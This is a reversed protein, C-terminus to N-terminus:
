RRRDPEPCFGMEFGSGAERRDLRDPPPCPAPLVGLKVLVPRYEYRVRVSAVPSRDLELDVETVDHHTRSGMGTAAYEDSLSSQKSAQAEAGAAAGPASPQAREQAAGEDKGLRKWWGGEEHCPPDDFAAPAPPVERFFVAEIVGLNDTEGLAAGYSGREGTFTFRRAHDGSVQWGPIVVTEHPGLVWKRAQWAGTHAADITNLGDVALAVAVRYPRPNHLRLTYSRGRLAEIYLTGRAAYEPRPAGDVLVEVSFGREEAAGVALGALALAAVALFRMAHRM